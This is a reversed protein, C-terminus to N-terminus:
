RGVMRRELGPVRWRRRLMEVAWDEDQDRCWQIDLGNKVGALLRGRPNNIKPHTASVHAITLFRRWTEESPAVGGMSVAEAYLHALKVLDDGRVADVLGAGIPNMDVHHIALKHGVEGDARGNHLGDPRDGGQRQVNVQHDLPRLREDGIKGPGASIAQGDVDFGTGVQVAGNLLDLRLGLPNRRKQRGM